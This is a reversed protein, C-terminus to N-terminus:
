YIVKYNGSVIYRFEEPRNKLVEEEQGALPTKQLNITADVIENV